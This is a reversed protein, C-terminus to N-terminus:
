QYNQVQLYRLETDNHREVGVRQLIQGQSKKITMFLCPRLPSQKKLLTFPLRKSSTLIIESIIHEKEHYRPDQSIIRGIQSKLIGLSLGQPALTRLYEPTYDSVQGSEDNIAHDYAYYERAQADRLEAIESNSKDDSDNNSALIARDHFISTNNTNGEDMTKIWNSIDIDGHLDPTYSSRSLFDAYRQNEEVKVICM